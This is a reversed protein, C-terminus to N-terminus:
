APPLPGTHWRGALYHVRGGEKLQMLIQHGARRDYKPHDIAAALDDPTFPIGLRAQQSLFEEIRERVYTNTAERNRRREDDTWGM